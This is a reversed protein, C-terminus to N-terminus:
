AARRDVRRALHKLREQIWQSEYITTGHDVSVLRGDEGEFILSALRAGLLEREAWAQTPTLNGIDRHQYRECEEYTRLPNPILRRPIRAM